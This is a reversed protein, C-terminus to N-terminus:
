TGFMLLKNFLKALDFLIFHRDRPLLLKKVLFVVVFVKFEGFRLYVRDHLAAFLNLPGFVGFHIFPRVTVCRM